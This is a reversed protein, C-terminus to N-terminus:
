TLEERRKKDELIKTTTRDDRERSILPADEKPSIQDM